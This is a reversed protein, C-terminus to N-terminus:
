LAKWERLSSRCQGTGAIPGACSVASLFGAWVATLLSEGRQLPFACEAVAGAPDDGGPRQARDAAGAVFADASMGAGAAVAPVGADEHAAVLVAGPKARAAAVGRVVVVAAGAAAVGPEEVGGAEAWAAMEVVAQAFEEGVVVTVDGDRQGREGLGQALGVRGLADELPQTRALGGGREQLLNDGSALRDAVFEEVAVRLGQGQM